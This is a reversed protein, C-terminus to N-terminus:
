RLFPLILPSLLGIIVGIIELFIWGYVAREVGKADHIDGGFM